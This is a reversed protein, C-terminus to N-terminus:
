SRVGLFLYLSFIAFILSPSWIAVSAPLIGAEGLATFFGVIVMMAIGLILSIGVGYLAGRRGLRFAFPMAVLAMVLSIVPYAVKNYLAVELEPVTQGALQLEDIYDRLENYNMEDPSTMGGQFYEPGESLRYKMPEDFTSYGTVESGDFTRAWGKSLIWWPGEIHSAQEAYLRGVLDYDEDFKFIQLGHLRESEPDFYAFNYLLQEKGFLWRRDARQGIQQPTKGRLVDRLEAVRANSAPLVESQMLGAVGALLGAALLVPFALRFVSIGLAKAATVENTRSLLAFTSLTTVLVIIPAIEYVIAFAKYKYYDFVVSSPIQNELIDEVRETLDSVIYISVGSVAVITLVRTFTTLVYRDLANPFRLRIEPLRLLLNARDRARRMKERRQARIRERKDKARLLRTWVHEQIWRDASAILLSKDKNRRYLLFFGAMLMLVNPMWVGLWAPLSGKKAAEEGSNFIVYYLVIVFISLAFGASRGGRANAFGLPLGLLGFVLCAAPFAWRKHIEVRATNRLEDQLSPDRAWRRLDSSRLERISKSSVTAAQQEPTELRITYQEQRLLQYNDPEDLDVVHSVAEDLELQVRGSGSSGRALGRRAVIAQTEGSPVIESLFVGKWRRDEPPAEFIYLMQDAWGTHPVRPQIEESLSQTLIDLRLEQLKKNGGPMVERMLYVNALTLVLSLLLIPRYLSFLSIGGARIAVLESDTSLRGIGILIGFLLSMPITMVVIHPLSLLLLRGVTSPEVGSGIILDASKFLVQILLIFTYVIFGLILPGVVETLIYRDLLRLM